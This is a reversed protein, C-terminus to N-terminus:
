QKPPFVSPPVPPPLPPPAADGDPAATADAPMSGDTALVNKLNGYDDIHIQDVPEEDDGSGDSYTDAESALPIETPAVDSAAVPILKDPEVAPQDTTVEQAAAPVLEDAKVSTEEPENSASAEVPAPEAPILEPVPTTAPEDQAAEDPPESDIAEYEMPKQAGSDNTPETTSPEAPQAAERVKDFVHPSGTEEEIQALTDGSVAKAVQATALSHAELQDAASQHPSDVAEEIDELTKNGMEVFPQSFQPTEPPKVDEPATDPAPEAGDTASQAPVPTPLPMDATDSASAAGSNHSLLPPTGSDSAKLADDDPATDSSASLQSSFQPPEAIMGGPSIPSEPETPPTNTTGFFNDFSDAGPVQPLTDDAPKERDAVASNPQEPETSVDVVAEEPPDSATTHAINLSGDEGFSIEPQETEDPAAPEPTEAATEQQLKTAVLQQNAGAAMLKGSVAMTASTTKDNSFRNTEAVVGTLLATAMQSDLSEPKMAEAVTTAMECLSSAKPDTWNLTGLESGQVTNVTAVTADHLIRGHAMIAQDIDDRNHIGLGVVVDVNFDGQSFVLDQEGISTRYPTIFIKVMSDEVKYRIKDAKAKDLAIIFDRLSDTNDEITEEPKLFDITSPVEGSFVTTAHKGQKTLFLTLGIAAALQDVSPNTSVTVLVNNADKLKAALQDKPSESTEKPSLVPQEDM